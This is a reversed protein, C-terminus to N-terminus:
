KAMMSQAARNRGGIWVSKSMSESRVHHSRADRQGGELVQHPMRLNLGGPKIEFERGLVDPVFIRASDGLARM